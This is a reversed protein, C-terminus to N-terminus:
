RGGASPGVLIDALDAEVSAKPEEEIRGLEEGDILAITTPTTVVQYQSILEKPEMANEDLAILTLKLNPNKAADLTALLAPLEYRCIQCWTGFFVALETPQKVAALRAVQGADPRYAAARRAYAPYRALLDARAIPGLLPAAAEVFFERGGAAFHIRGQANTDFQAVPHGGAPPAPRPNGDAGLMEPRAYAAVQQTRLDAVYALDGTGPLLLLAQFDSRDFVEGGAAATTGPKSTADTVRLTLGPNDIWSPDGASPRAPAPGAASAAAALGLIAVALVALRPPAIRHLLQPRSM